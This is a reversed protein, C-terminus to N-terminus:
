LVTPSLEVSGEAESKGRGGGGNSAGSSNGTTGGRGELAEGDEIEEFSNAADGTLDVLTQKFKVAFSDRTSFSSNSM